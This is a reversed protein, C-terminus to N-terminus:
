DVILEGSESWSYLTTKGQQRLNEHRSDKYEEKGYRRKLKRGHTYGRANKEEYSTLVGDRYTVSVLSGDPLHRKYRGLTSDGRYDWTELQAGDRYHGLWDLRGNSKQVLAWGNFTKGVRSRSTFYHVQDPQMEPALWPMPLDLDRELRELNDKRVGNVFLMEAQLGEKGDWLRHTGDLTGDKLHHELFRFNGDRRSQILQIGQARGRVDQQRCSLLYGESFGCRLQGGDQLAHRYSILLGKKNYSWHERQRGQEYRAQRIGDRRTNWAWGTFNDLLKTDALDIDPTHRAARIDFNNEFSATPLWVGKPFANLQERRVGNVLEFTRDFVLGSTNHWEHFQGHLVGHRYRGREGNEKTDTRLIEGDLLGFEDFEAQYSLFGDPYHDQQHRLVGDKYQYQFIRRPTRKHVIGTIPNRVGRDLLSKDYALGDVIEIADKDYEKVTACSALLLLCILAILRKM